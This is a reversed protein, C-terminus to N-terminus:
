SVYFYTYFAWVDGSATSHASCTTVNPYLASCFNQKARHVGM